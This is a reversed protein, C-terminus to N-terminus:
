ATVEGAEAVVNILDNVTRFQRGVFLDDSLEIGLEDELRVLMGVFGLSNVTLRDGNLPEDDPIQAPRLSIRSEAIVVRKVADAVAARDLAVTSM